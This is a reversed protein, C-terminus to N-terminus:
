TTTSEIVALVFCEAWCMVVVYRVDSLRLFYILLITILVCGVEVAAVLGELAAM